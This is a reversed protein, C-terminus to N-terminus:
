ANGEEAQDEVSERRLFRELGRESRAVLGPSPVGFPQWDSEDHHRISEGPPRRPLPPTM